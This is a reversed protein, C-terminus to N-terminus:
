RKEREVGVSILSPTAQVPCANCGCVSGGTAAPPDNTWQGNWGGHSSCTQDCIAAAASNDPIVTAAKFDCGCPFNERADSRIVGKMSSLWDRADADLTFLLPDNGTVLGHMKQYIPFQAGLTQFASTRTVMLYQPRPESATAGVSAVMTDSSAMVNALKVAMDRTGRAVTTTNVGIVDAYFLPRQTGDGFPMVKFAITSLTADSMQSMSETYGITARGFGESFWEAREYEGATPVTANFFSSTALLQRQDAVADTNLSQENPPLPLPYTGTLGHAIDLYLAANTTGGSMDLMLGRRDPPIQSTFTCQNLTGTVEDFTTANALQQDDEKYFLVNSCGLLPLAYYNGQYQVGERAYDVFDGANQVENPAISELFGNARFDNFFMADFVFVDVNDPPNMSYGGDWQDKPVFDLTVGPEVAAWASTIATVFQEYRPVYPYLAVTLTEARAPAPAALMGGSLVAVAAGGLVTRVINPLKVM